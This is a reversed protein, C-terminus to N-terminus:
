TKKIRLSFNNNTALLHQEAESHFAFTGDFKILIQMIYERLWAVIDTIHTIFLCVQNKQRGIESINCSYTLNKHYKRVIDKSFYFNCQASVVDFKDKHKTLRIKIDTWSISM